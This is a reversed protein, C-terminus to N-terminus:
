AWGSELLGGHSGVDSGLHDPDGPGLDAVLALGVAPVLVRVLEEGGDLVLGVAADARRPGDVLGAHVHAADHPHGVHGVDLAPRALVAGPLGAALLVAIQDDEVPTAVTEGVMDADGPAVLLGLAVARDLEVGRGAGGARLRVAAANMDAVTAALGNAAPDVDLLEHGGRARLSDGHLGLLLSGAGEDLVAPDAALCHLLELLAELVDDGLQGHVTAGAVLGPLRELLAQAGVRVADHVVLGV